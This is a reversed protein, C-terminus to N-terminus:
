NTQHAVISYGDPDLFGFQRGFAGDSVQQTITAGAEGVRECLEDVDDCDIWLVLGWGLRDVSDLDVLPERVAFPIPRSDFVVAHPPGDPNVTLGLVKEYFRRSVELDRVQIAIFDIGTATAMEIEGKILM